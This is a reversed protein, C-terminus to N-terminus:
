KTESALKILVRSVATFGFSATVCTSAGFGGSCDLRTNGESLQKTGCVSGDPQPYRLQETSYVADVSFKKGGKPFGYDRRLRSRVSSLLPDNTTKALDILSIQTPDIQGGAGGITVLPLKQRRAHAILATKERLSDIADVIYGSEATLLQELNDLTLFSEIEDVQCEPNIERLRDAMVAVKSLGITSSLAHIQRNVNTVCIDDLDMLVIRGVGSRALAEAVWSGVGGIGIVTVTASAFKELAAVGYLRGIGAFRNLYDESLSHKVM